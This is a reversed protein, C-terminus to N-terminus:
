ATKLNVDIPQSTHLHIDRQPYAVIIDREALARAIAMRVGSRVLRLPGSQNMDSWCHVNFILANDGFDEFVYETSPTTICVRSM